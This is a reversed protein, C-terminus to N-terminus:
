YNQNFWAWKSTWVQLILVSNYPHLRKSIPRTTELTGPETPLFCNKSPSGQTNSILHIFHFELCFNEMVCITKPKPLTKNWYRYDRILHSCGITHFSIRFTAVNWFYKSAHLLVLLSSLKNSTRYSYSFTTQILTQPPKRAKKLSILTASLGRDRRAHCVLHNYITCVIMETALWSIISFFLLIKNIMLMTWGDLLKTSHNYKITRLHILTVLRMKAVTHKGYTYLQSRKYNSIAIVYCLMYSIRYQSKDSSFRRYSRSTTRNGGTGEKMSKVHKLHQLSTVYLWPPLIKAIPNQVRKAEAHAKFKAWM